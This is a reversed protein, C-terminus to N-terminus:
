CAAGPDYGYDVEWFDPENRRWYTVAVAPQGDPIPESCGDCLLTKLEDQAVGNITIHHGPPKRARVIPVRREHFGCLRDEADLAPLKAGCTPCYIRRM